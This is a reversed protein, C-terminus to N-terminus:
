VVVYGTSCVLLNIGGLVGLAYVAYVYGVIVISGACFM